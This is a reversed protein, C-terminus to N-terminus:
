KQKPQIRDKIHSLWEFAKDENVGYNALVSKDISDWISNAIKEDEKSWALKNYMAEYQKKYMKEQCNLYETYLANMLNYLDGDNDLEISLVKKSGETLYTILDKM